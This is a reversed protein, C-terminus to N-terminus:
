GRSSRSRSRRSRTRVCRARFLPVQGHGDGCGLLGVGFAGDAVHDGDGARDDVDLERGALQRRDEVRDLDQALALREDALDLLVEAVVPHAADRHGGGVAQCAAGLRDVGAAGDGDGDTRRGEAADEVHKAVGDVALALDLGLGVVADVALRGAELVLGGRGLHELGADLDDVEDGGEGLAALDADEAAGADALRDDDLLQDAVDGLLVVAVGDERAHALARALAVVQEVLHGLRADDVLGHHDEALHVLRRARAQADAEGGQRHGLVEAVLPAVHQEEDVVDEAEGLGPGSTEASSPRMGDATPYWGFRAM